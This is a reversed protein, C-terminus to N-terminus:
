WWSQNMTAVDTSLYGCGAALQRATDPVPRALARIRDPMTCATRHTAM